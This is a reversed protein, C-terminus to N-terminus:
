LSLQGTVLLDEYSTHASLVLAVDHPVWSQLRIDAHMHLFRLSLMGKYLALYGENQVVKAFCDLSSNYRVGGSMLNKSKIQNQMRTKVLDVPYVFTAGIASAAASIAFTRVYMMSNHLANPATKVDTKSIPEVKTTSFVSQIVDPQASPQQQQLRAKSIHLAKKADNQELVAILELLFTKEHNSQEMVVLLLLRYHDVRPV